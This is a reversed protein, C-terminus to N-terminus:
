GQCFWPIGIMISKTPYEHLPKLKLEFQQVFNLQNEIQSILGLWGIKSGTWCHSLCDYSYHMKFYLFMPKIM